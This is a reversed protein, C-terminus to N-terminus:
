YNSSIFQKQAPRTRLAHQWNMHCCHVTKKVTELLEHSQHRVEIYVTNILHAPRTKMSSCTAPRYQPIEVQQDSNQM